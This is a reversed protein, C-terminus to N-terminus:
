SFRFAIRISNLTNPLTITIIKTIDDDNATTINQIVRALQPDAKLTQLLAVVPTSLLIKNDSLVARVFQKLKSYVENYKKLINAVFKELRDKQATLEHM